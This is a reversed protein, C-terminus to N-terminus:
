KMSSVEKKVEAYKNSLDLLQKNSVLKESHILQNEIESALKSLEIAGLNASASKLSHVYIKMHKSDGNIQCDAIQKLLKEASEFYTSLLFSFDDEMTQKLQHYKNFDIITKSTTNCADNFENKPTDRNSKTTPSKFWLQIKEVLQEKTFPKILFDNMGVNLCKERDNLLANATLAIIPIEPKDFEQEYNRIHKTSEFGDMHPMQCDMLILDYQNQKVLHFAESGDNAIDVNFGINKLLRDAYLINAPNDEVLLLKATTSQSIPLETKVVSENLLINTNPIDLPISFWFTSGFGLKSQVNIDGDMLNVLQKCIALGLGTGGFRKTTSSDAQTFSDFLEHHGEKDIGIGTDTIEFKIKNKMNETKECSINVSINGQHTFKIANGILNVLIQKIRGSDGSIIDPCDNSINIFFNLNKKRINSEFLKSINELLPKLQFPKNEILLKGSEIKSFDLIDNIIELLSRTSVLITDVYETQEHDLKTDELLQAMGLIGNMPTRIEHSMTALFASKTNALKVASDRAQELEQARIDLLRVNKESQWYDLFLKKSMLTMFLFYAIFLISIAYAQKSDMFLCFGATPLLLTAQFMHALARHPVLTIISGASIGASCILLLLSVWSINYHYIVSISFVAWTFATILLTTYYTNIWLKPNHGYLKSFLSENTTRIFGNVLLIAGITLVVHSHEEYFPTVLVILLFNGFILAPGPTSRSAMNKFAKYREEETIHQFFNM